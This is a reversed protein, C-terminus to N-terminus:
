HTATFSIGRILIGKCKRAARVAEHMREPAPVAPTSVSPLQTLRVWRVVILAQVHRRWGAFGIRLLLGFCPSLLQRLNQTQCLVLM